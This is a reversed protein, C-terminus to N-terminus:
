GGPKDRKLGRRSDSPTRATRARSRQPPPRAALADRGADGHARLQTFAAIMKRAHLNGKKADGRFIEENQAQVHHAFEAVFKEFEKVLDREGCQFDLFRLKLANDDEHIPASIDAVGFSWINM